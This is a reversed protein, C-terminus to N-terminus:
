RTALASSGSARLDDLAKADAEAKALTERATALARNRQGADAEAKAAKQAALAAAQRKDPSPKTLAAAEAKAAEAKTAAAKRDGKLYQKEAWAVTAKADALRWPLVDGPKHCYQVVPDVWRAPEVLELSSLLWKGQLRRFQAQYTGLPHGDSGTVAWQGLASSGDGARVFGLPTGGLRANATTAFPDRLGALTLQNLTKGPAIWATKKDLLFSAAPSQGAAAARWYGQMVAPAPDRAEAVEKAVMPAGGMCAREQAYAAQQSMMQGVMLGIWMQAGAPQSAGLALAAAGAVVAINKM